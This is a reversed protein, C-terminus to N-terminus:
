STRDLPDPGFRNPGDTGKMVYWIILLIAGIGTLAILIWWGTRDLDHLRRISVALSPLLLALGVITQVINLGGELNVGFILADIALAIASAIFAFLTWYWYASRQARGSFNVYNQFGSSIAETFNMMM